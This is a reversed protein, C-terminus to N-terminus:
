VGALNNEIRISSLNGEMLTNRLQLALGHGAVTPHIMELVIRTLYRETKFSVTDAKSSGIQRFVFSYANSAKHLDQVRRGARPAPIPLKHWCASAQGDGNRYDCALCKLKAPGQETAICICPRKIAQELLFGGKPSKKYKNNRKTTALTTMTTIVIIDM